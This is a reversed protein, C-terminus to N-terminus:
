LRALGAHHLFDWRARQLEVCQRDRKRYSPSLAPRLIRTPCTVGLVDRRADCIEINDRIGIIDPGLTPDNAILGGALEYTRVFVCMRVAMRTSAPTASYGTNLRANAVM